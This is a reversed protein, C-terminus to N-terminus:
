RKEEGWWTNGKRAKAFPAGDSRGLKEDCLSPCILGALSPFVNLALLSLVGLIPSSGMVVLNLAKREAFQGVRAVHYRM